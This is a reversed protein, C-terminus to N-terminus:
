QNEEEDRKAKKDACRRHIHCGPAVEEEDNFIAGKCEECFGEIAYSVTGEENRIEVKCPTADPYAEQFVRVARTRDVDELWLTKPVTGAVEIQSM